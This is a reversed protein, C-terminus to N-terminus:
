GRQRKTLESAGALNLLPQARLVDMQSCAQKEPRSPMLNYNKNRKTNNRYLFAPFYTELSRIYTQKGKNNNVRNVYDNNKKMKSSSIQVHISPSLNWPTSFLFAYLAIFCFVPKMKLVTKKCLWGQGGSAWVLQLHLVHVKPLRGFAEQKWLIKVNTVSSCSHNLAALKGGSSCQLEQKHCGNFRWRLQKAWSWHQQNQPNSGSSLLLACRLCMSTRLPSQISWGWELALNRGPERFFCFHCRGGAARIKRTDLVAEGTICFNGEYRGDFSLWVSGM